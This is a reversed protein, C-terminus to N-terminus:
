IQALGADAILTAKGSKAVAFHKRRAPARCYACQVDHAPQKLVRNSGAYGDVQLTGSFGKLLGEAYQDSCEPAHIFAMGCIKVAGPDTRPRDDRAIVPAVTATTSM